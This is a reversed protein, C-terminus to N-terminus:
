EVELVTQPPLKTYTGHEDIEADHRRITSVFRAIAEASKEPERQLILHPGDLTAVVMEPKVHQIEVVCKVNILRDHKGQIYMMPVTVKALEKRVDCSLTARLRAALVKSKVTSSATRVSELLSPSAEPGVLWLRAALDPLPICFMLSAFLMGLFYRWGRVPCSAFGACLVLGDLNLPNSAAYKIALPTSFSEALLIFPSSIPCATQVFKELDAYSLCEDNPYSVTIIDFTKPLAAVCDAFLRGCGDLGPLLVLTMKPTVSGSPIPQREQSNSSWPQALSSPVALGGSCGMVSRHRHNHGATLLAADAMIGYRRVSLSDDVCRLSSSLHQGIGGLDIIGLCRKGLNDKWSDNAVGLRTSAATM